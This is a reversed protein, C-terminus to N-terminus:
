RRARSPRRDAFAYVAVSSGGLVLLTTFLPMRFWTVGIATAAIFALDLPKRSTELTLEVANAFTLGVAASAAGKLAAHALPTNLTSFYFAGFALVILTPPLAGAVLSTLAGPIGRLRQGIFVGLNLVNPGPFLECLEIAEIFETESLWRMRVVVAQRIQAKQGGGFGTISIWGIVGAIEALSPV